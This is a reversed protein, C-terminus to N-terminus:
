INGCQFPGKLDFPRHLESFDYSYPSVCNTRKLINSYYLLRVLLTKSAPLFVPLFFKLFYSSPHLLNEYYSLSTVGYFTWFWATVNNEHDVFTYVLPFHPRNTLLFSNYKKSIELLQSVFM